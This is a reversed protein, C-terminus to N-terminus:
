PTTIGAQILQEKVQEVSIGATPLPYGLTDGNPTFGDGSKTKRIYSIEGQQRSPSFITLQDNKTGRLCLDYLCGPTMGNAGWFAGMNTKRDPASSGIACEILGNRLVFDGIIGDAEKGKPLQTVTDPSIEIIEVKGFQSFIPILLLFLLSTKKM